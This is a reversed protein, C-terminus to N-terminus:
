LYIIRDFYKNLSTDHTVMIITKGMDKMKLFIDMIIRKNEDDINGTPEDALILECDKILTRALSIRQQEGGSLTFVKRKEYGSLGVLSLAEEMTLTGKRNYYLAVKLNSEVTENDILAYNQFLYGIKNRLLNQSIRSNPKVNEQNFIKVTGGSPKEITGIINLLTSKGSGSKGQIGIMEGQEVKLNLDSIVVTDGFSKQLGNVEIVVSM